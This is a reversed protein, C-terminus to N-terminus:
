EDDVVELTPFASEGSADKTRIFETVRAKSSMENEGLLTVIDGLFYDRNYGEAANPNIVGDFYATPNNKYIEILGRSRRMENTDVEANSTEDIGVVRRNLGTPIPATDSRPIGSSGSATLVYALNKLTQNSLLYRHEDFTDFRADFVVSNSIDAGNYIEIGVKSVSTDLPRVSKLGRHRTNLMEYLTALLDGFKIEFDNDEGFEFDAPPILNIEPIEDGPNKASKSELVGGSITRSIDGLVERLMMYAADSAKNAKMLWAVRATAEGLVQNYSVRRDLVSEVMRGTVKLEPANNPKKTILHSEVIATSLSENITVYSDLPLARMCGQIDSSVLEFDGMSSYRESWVLSEYTDFISAPHFNSNLTLLDM